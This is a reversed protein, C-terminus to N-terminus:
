EQIFQGNHDVKGKKGQYEVVATGNKYSYIYDYKVPLEVNGKKDVLGYKSNKEVKMLGGYSSSFSYLYDYEVPLVVEGQKNVLGYKKNKEVKMLGGYSSSFSYLYDYEIPLVVRGKENLLGYKGKKEVKMMGGYSSSFSYLYDYLPPVVENSDKDILGYKGNKTVKAMGKYSSSFAYVHDYNEETTKRKYADTRDADNRYNGPMPLETLDEDNEADDVEPQKGITQVSQIINNNEEKNKNYYRIGLYICVVIMCLAAAFFIGSLRDTKSGSQSSASKQHHISDNGSNATQGEKQHIADLNNEATTIDESEDKLLTFDVNETLGIGYALCQFCFRVFREEFGERRVIKGVSENVFVSWNDNQGKFEALQAAYGGAVISKMVFRLSPPNFESFDFLFSILNEDSYIDATHGQVIQRLAIHLPPKM